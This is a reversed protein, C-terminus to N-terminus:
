ARLSQLHYEPKFLAFFIGRQVSEAPGPIVQLPFLLTQVFETLILRIVTFLHAPGLLTYDRHGAQLAPLGKDGLQVINDSLLLPLNNMSLASKFHGPVVPTLGILAFLAHRAMDLGTALNFLSLAVLTLLFLQIFSRTTEM